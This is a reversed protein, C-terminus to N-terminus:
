EYMESENEINLGLPHMTKLENLWYMERITTEGPNTKDIIVIDCDSVLGNRKGELFHAHFFAQTHAINAM